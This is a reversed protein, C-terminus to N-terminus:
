CKIEVEAQRGQFIEGVTEKDGYEEISNNIYIIVFIKAATEMDANTLQLDEKYTYKPQM